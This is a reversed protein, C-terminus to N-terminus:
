ESQQESESQKRKEEEERMRKLAEAAMADDYAQMDIDSLELPNRSFNAVEDSTSAAKCRAGLRKYIDQSTLCRVNQFNNLRMSDNIVKISM